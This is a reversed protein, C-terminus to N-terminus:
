DKCHEFLDQETVQFRPLYWLLTNCAQLSVPCVLPRLRWPLEAAGVAKLPAPAAGISGGRGHLRRWIGRGCGRRLCLGVAGVRQHQVVRHRPPLLRERRTGVLAVADAEVAAADGDVVVAVYTGQGPDLSSDRADSWMGQVAAGQVRLVPLLSSHSPSQCSHCDM